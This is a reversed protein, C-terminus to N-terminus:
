SPDKGSRLLITVPHEAAPVGEDHRALEDTIEFWPAKTRTFIHRLPRIGPDGDVLGAPIEAVGIKRRVIPLPSGCNRCFAHHYAPPETRIPADYVVVLDKGRSWRFCSLKVYFTAAFASGYAKRCRSCHCLEMPTGSGEIEFGVGGCLCSGNM